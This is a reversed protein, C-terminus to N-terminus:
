AAEKEARANVDAAVQKRHCWEQLKVLAPHAAASLEKPFNTAATGTLRAMADVLDSLDAPFRFPGWHHLNITTDAWVQGGLQKWDHCFKWDESLWDRSGHREVVGSTFYAFGEEGAWPTNSAFKYARDPHAARLKDFVERHLALCGTGADNVVILKSAPDVVAGPTINAVFTPVITKMAYLGAVFKRGHMLHQWLRVIHEPSIEVDSDVWLAFRYPSSLFLHSLVNRARDIHSDNPLTLFEAVVPLIEVSGDPMRFRGTPTQRCRDIHLRFAEHMQYAFVPTLVVIRDRYDFVRPSQTTDSM